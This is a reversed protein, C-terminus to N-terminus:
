NRIASAFRFEPQSFIHDKIFEVYDDENLFNNDKAISAFSLTQIDLYNTNEFTQATPQSTKLALLLVFYIRYKKLFVKM